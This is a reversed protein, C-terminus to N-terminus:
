DSQSKKFSEIQNFRGDIYDILEDFIYRDMLFPGQIPSKLYESQYWIWIGYEPLQGEDGFVPGVRFRLLQESDLVDFTSDNAIIENTEM